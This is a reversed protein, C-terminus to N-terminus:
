QRGKGYRECGVGYLRYRRFMAEGTVIDLWDWGDPDDVGDIAETVAVNQADRSIIREMDGLGV